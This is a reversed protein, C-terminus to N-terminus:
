DEYVHLSETDLLALPLPRPSTWIFTTGQRGGLASIVMASISQYEFRELDPIEPIRYKGGTVPAWGASGALSVRAM